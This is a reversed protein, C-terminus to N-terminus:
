RSAYIAVLNADGVLAVDDYIPGLSSGVPFVIATPAITTLWSFEPDSYTSGAGPMNWLDGAGQPDREDPGMILKWGSNLGADVRNVEDYSSPGNETM